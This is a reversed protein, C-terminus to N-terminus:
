KGKQNTKAQTRFNLFNKKRRVHGGHRL